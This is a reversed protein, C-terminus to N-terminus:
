GAACALWVYVLVTTSSGGDKLAFALSNDEDMHWPHLFGLTSHRTSISSVGLLEEQSGLM